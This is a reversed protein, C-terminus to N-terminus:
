HTEYKHYLSDAFSQYLGDEKRLKDLISMAEKDRKLGILTYAKMWQLEDKQSKIVEQSYIYEDDDINAKEKELQELETKLSKEEVDIQSMATTFDAKNILQVIADHGEGGRLTNENMPIPLGLETGFGTPYNSFVFFGIVIVAAIGSLWYIYRRIPTITAVKRENEAKNKIYTEGWEKIEEIKKNRSVIGAHVTKTFELQEEMEHNNTVEEEFTVRDNESMRGLLYADIRDQYEQKM